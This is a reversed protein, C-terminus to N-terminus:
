KLPIICYIDKRSLSIKSLLIDVLIWTTAHTLIGKKKLASSYEITPVYWMPKEKKKKQGILVQTTKM